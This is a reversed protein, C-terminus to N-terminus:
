NWNSHLSVLCSFIAEESGLRGVQPLHAALNTMEPTVNISNSSKAKSFMTAPLTGNGRKEIASM